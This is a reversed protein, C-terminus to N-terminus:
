TNKVVMYITLFTHALVDITSKFETKLFDVLIVLMPQSCVCTFLYVTNPTFLLPKFPKLRPLIVNELTITKFCIKVRYNPTYKELIYRIKTAIGSCKYSTFPLSLYFFTLDPNNEDALRLAKNPNPGFDRNKIIVWNRPRSNRIM